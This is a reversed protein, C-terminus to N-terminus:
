LQVLCIDPHEFLNSYSSEQELPQDDIVKSKLVDESGHAWSVMVQSKCDKVVSAPKNLGNNFLILYVTEELWPAIVDLM